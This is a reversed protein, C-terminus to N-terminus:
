RGSGDGVGRPGGQPVALCVKPSELIHFHSENQKWTTEQSQSRENLMINVLDMWATALLLSEKKIALYYEM